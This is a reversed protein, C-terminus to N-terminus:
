PGARRSQATPTYRYAGTNHNFEFVGYDGSQELTYSADSAAATTGTLGLSLTQGSDRDSTSITGTSASFSDYSTTDTVTIGPYTGYRTRSATLSKTLNWGPAIPRSVAVFLGANSSFNRHNVRSSSAFLGGSLSVRSLETVSMNASITGIDSLSRHRTDRGTVSVGAELLTPTQRNLERITKVSAQYSMYPDSKDPTTNTVPLNLFLIEDSKSRGFANETQGIEMALRAQVKVPDLESEIQALLFEARRAM